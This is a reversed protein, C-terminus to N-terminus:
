SLLIGSGLELFVCTTSGDGGCLGLSKMLPIEM